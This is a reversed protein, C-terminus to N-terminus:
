NGAPPAKLNIVHSCRERIKRVIGPRERRKKKVPTAHRKAATPVTVSASLRSAEVGELNREVTKNVETALARHANKPEMRILFDRM